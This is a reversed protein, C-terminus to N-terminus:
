AGSPRRPVDDTGYIVELHGTGVLAQMALAEERTMPEVAVRRLAYDVAERKTPLRHIQM